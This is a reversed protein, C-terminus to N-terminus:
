FFGLHAEKLALFQRIEKLRIFVAEDKFKIVTEEEGSIDFKLYENRSREYYLNHFFRFEESIETHSDRFGVYDRVFVLPEAHIGFRSYEISGDGFKVCVPFGETIGVEWDINKM